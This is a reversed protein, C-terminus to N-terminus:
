PIVVLPTPTFLLLFLALTIIGVLRQRSNLATVEDLIPANRRSFVFILAAWLWWGNWIFGMALLIGIVAYTVFIARRGLLAYLIHGGDLQGAPLLNLMTVLMGTWGAFAVPHLFVDQGGSPLWEGFVAFKMAAYLLNNGELFYGGGVPLPEITSLALGILTLPIALIMGAIPGAVAISFLAPRDPPPEKMQIFAGMTGFISIIPMPIFFPYSVQVGLRRSVLFHGLEHALLISLLSGSFLLGNGWDLTVGGGPTAALGGTVITSAVTAAFLLLALWLRSGQSEIVGPIAVIAIQDRAPEARIMPILGVEQLPPLLRKRADSAPVTLVGLWRHQVGHPLAVKEYDAIKMVTGVLDSLTPERRPPPPEEALLREWSWKEEM